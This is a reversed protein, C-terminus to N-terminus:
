VLSWMVTSTRSSPARASANPCGPRERSRPLVDEAGLRAPPSLPGRPSGSIGLEGGGLDDGLQVAVDDALLAGLARHRDREPVAPAPLVQGGLQAVLHRRLVDDHDAGGADPLGLDGTPQGLEGLRREELDLGGLVGLDAVHAAVDLGHDAVQGLEAHVHDLGLHRRAHAVPGLGEGLIPQEIEEQRAVVASGKTLPVRSSTEGSAERSAVRSFSRAWSRAPLSSSRTISSSVCAWTPGISSTKVPCPMSSTPILRLSMSDFRMGPRVRRRRTFTRSARRSSAWSSACFSTSTSSATLWAIWRTSFEPM